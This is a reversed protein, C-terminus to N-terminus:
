KFEPNWENCGNCINQIHINTVKTSTMLRSHEFDIISVKGDNEIFNYGTLDPYYINNLVLNRVIIVVQDFINEPIESAEEGYMYSLNYKGVKTMVMIKSNEDYEIIKPMNVIGLQYVYKHMFYETHNVNQKVYYINPHALYDEM